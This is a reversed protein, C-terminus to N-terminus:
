PWEALLASVFAETTTFKKRSLLPRLGLIQRLDGLWDGVLGDCTFVDCYAAGVSLHILDHFSGRLAGREKNSAGPRQVATDLFGENFRARARYCPMAQVNKEILEVLRDQVDGSSCQKAAYEVDRRAVMRRDAEMARTRLDVRRKYATESDKKEASWGEADAWARNDRFAQATQPMMGVEEDQGKTRIADLLALIPEKTALLKSAADHSLDRFATLLSPAFASVSVAPTIGAAVKVWHEDEAEELDLLSRAWVIPLQEYWRAMAAATTTDGWRGLEAIHFTSLCLNAEKAVREVWDFLPRYEAEAPKSSGVAHARFADCLTSHDLYFTPKSQDRLKSPVDTEEKGALELQGEAKKTRGRPRKEGDTASATEPMAKKAAGKKKGGDAGLGKIKEDEARKANLAFLCDIVADEFKELKNRDDDNMPCIPPVEVELWRGDPDGVAYAKLVKRDMEEHLRRLELIRTDGCASDKLRNYTITLGVNEDVMYRTRSDYLREGIQELAPIATRPDPTPFPFTDFCDSAAFLYRLRDLRFGLSSTVRLERRDNCFTGAGASYRGIQGVIGYVLPIAALHPAFFRGRCAGAAHTSYAM